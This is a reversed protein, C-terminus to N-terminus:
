CTGHKLRARFISPHVAVLAYGTEIHGEGKGEVALLEGGSYHACVARETERSVRIGPASRTQRALFEAIRYEGEPLLQVHAVDATPARVAAEKCRNAAVRWVADEIYFPPCSVVEVRGEYVKFHSQVLIRGVSLKFYNIGAHRLSAVLLRCHSDM